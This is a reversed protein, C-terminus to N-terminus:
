ESAAKALKEAVKESYEFSENSSVWSFGDNLYRPFLHLHYHGVDNFIGGNQMISYGDLKYVKKLANVLKKSVLIIENLVDDPIEDIDLYHNKPILLIHGENIPDNDLFAIVKDNEYVIYLKLKKSVIDCFVCM